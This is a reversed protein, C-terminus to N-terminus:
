RYWDASRQDHSRLRSGCYSTAAGMCDTPDPGERRKCDGRWEAEGTEAHFSADSNIKVWGRPPPKWRDVETERQAKRTDLDVVHLVEGVKRKGKDSMGTAPAVGAIGLSESYSGLFGASGTVTGKGEGHM